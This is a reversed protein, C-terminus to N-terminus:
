QGTIVPIQPPMDVVAEQITIYSDFTDTVNNNNTVKVHIQADGPQTFEINCNSTTCTLNSDTVNGDSDTFTYSWNYSYHSANMDESSIQVTAQYQTNIQFASANYDVESIYFDPVDITQAVATMNADITTTGNIDISQGIIPQYADMEPYVNLVYNGNALNTLSTTNGDAETSTVFNGNDDFLELYASGDSMATCNADSQCINLHVNLTNLATHTDTPNWDVQIDATWDFSGDPNQAVGYIINTGPNLQVKYNTFDYSNNGEGYDSLISNDVGVLQDNVVIGFRGNTKDFNRLTASIPLKGDADINSETIDGIFDFVPSGSVASHPVESMTIDQAFTRGAPVTIAQTLESKAVIAGNSNIELAQLKYKKGAELNELIYQGDSQPYATNIYLGDKNYIDLVLMDDSSVIGGITGGINGINPNYSIHIPNTQAIGKTNAMEIVINNDGVEAPLSINVNNGDIQVNANVSIGNQYVYVNSTKVTLSGDTKDRANLKITAIGSSMNVSSDIISISAVNDALDAANQLRITINKDANLNRITKIVPIYTSNPVSVRIVRNTGRGGIVNDFTVDSGQLAQMSEFENLDTNDTKIGDMVVVANQLSDNNEDTVSVNIHYLPKTSM